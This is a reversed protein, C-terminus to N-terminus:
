PCLHSPVDNPCSCSAFRIVKCLENQLPLCCAMVLSIFGVDYLLCDLNAYVFAWILIFVFTFKFDRLLPPHLAHIYHRVQATSKNLNQLLGLIFKLQPATAPKDQAGSASSVSLSSILASAAAKSTPMVFKDALRRRLLSIQPETPPVDNGNNQTGQEM